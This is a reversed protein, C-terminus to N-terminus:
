TIFSSFSINEFMASTILTDEYSVDVQENVYPLYGDVGIGTAARDLANTQPRESTPITPEFGVPTM